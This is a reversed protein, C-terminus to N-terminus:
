QESICYLSERGRIFIDQGALAMSADTPESLTNTALVELTPGPKLVVCTGERSLIYVRGGVAVPSAYLNLLGPISEAEFYAKGTAADLCTMRGSTKSNFYVLDDVLLPSAVYPASGSYTWAIADTGVLTGTRGLRVAHVIRQRYDSMAVVTDNVCIPSPIVSDTLPPGSWLERGDRLDYGRLGGSSAVVVQVGGERELILPTTWSTPEDRKVRWLEDGTTKDYAIMVDDLEHDRVLILTNGHLAPSSGEGFSKRTYLKGPDKQWVLEGALDYAYLGRSGFSVILHEGDTVPSASAYGHDRHHGEHPAVERAVREWLTQGTARDLCLVTFRYIEDPLEVNESVERTGGDPLRAADAKLRAIEEASLKRGTPVATLVFVKNDWVIPTATGAGPIKVKWRVNNTESWTLPPTAQPAFGNALPGRWQPWYSVAKTGTTDAAVLPLACLPALLILSHLKM